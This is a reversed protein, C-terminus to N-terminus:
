SLDNPCVSHSIDLGLLEERRIRLQSDYTASGALERWSYDAAKRPAAVCCYLTLSYLNSRVSNTRINTGFDLSENTDVRVSRRKSGSQGMLPVAEPHWRCDYFLKLRM